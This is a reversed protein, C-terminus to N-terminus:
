KPWCTTSCARGATPPWRLSRSGANISAPCDTATCGPVQGHANWDGVVLGGRLGHPAQARETLLSANGHFSSGTGARSAPWRVPLAGADIAAPTARVTLPSSTRSPSGRMARTRATRLHRRRRPLAQRHRRRSRGRAPPGPELQGQLGLTMAGATPPSSGPDSSYGEYTRGWRYDQPVALTPAFTWEIGSGAIEAATAVGIRRILTPITAGRRPRRQAPLDDRRAPEFPRPRADVGFLMPVGAGAPARPPATNPWWSQGLHAADARENGYPGSNGGALISGLPYRALDAPTVSSIDGQIVQGVKEALTTRAVLRDIERETAPDTIASPSSAAPWCSPTRRRRAPADAAIAAGACGAMLCAALVVRATSRVTM